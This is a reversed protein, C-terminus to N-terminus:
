GKPAGPQKLPHANAFADIQMCRAHIRAVTPMSEVSGGFFGLGVVQSALCIDAVSVHDGHCFQGTAADKTLHGEMAALATGMWHRSWATRQAEDIHLTHELYHRVRPVVLPHGDSVPIQALARVRARGIPDSPLLAPQPQIEDLYEMIAMSQSLVTGDDLVLAPLAMQPNVAKFEPRMQHGAMLDVVQDDTAIGKLNLAIRVRFSALSRWFNFFQM